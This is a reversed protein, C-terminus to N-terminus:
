LGNQNLFNVLAPANPLTLKKLINYRHVEVTKLSVGLQLAIEKSSLGFKVLKVVELERRSLCNITPKSDDICGNLARIEECVYTKGDNVELIARILEERTSNKTVYGSGGMKLYKKAYAPMTHMSVGIMRVGPVHQRILRTAEFGSMEGMNIDMLIIDPQLKPALEVAEEGSAVTRIVQFRPDNNFIYAWTDRILQHDDAIMLQIVKM